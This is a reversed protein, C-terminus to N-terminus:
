TLSTAATHFSCEVPAIHHLLQLVASATDPLIDLLLHLSEDKTSVERDELELLEDFDKVDDIPIYKASGAHSVFTFMRPILSMWVITTTIPCQLSDTFVVDFRLHEVTEAMTM